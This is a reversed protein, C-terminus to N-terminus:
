SQLITGGTAAHIQAYQQNFRAIRLAEEAVSLQTHTNQLQELSAVTDKFLNSIRTEDRRSKELNQSAQQVQADIETLDLTALLQGQSVHDGEKVYIKSIIGGIKFSLHAEANSAILGSYQLNRSYNGMTVPQLKVLIPDEGTKQIATAAKNDGCKVLAFAILAVMPFRLTRFLKANM